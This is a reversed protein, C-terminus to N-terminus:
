FVGGGDFLHGTAGIPVAPHEVFAYTGTLSAKPEYVLRGAPVEVSPVLLTDMSAVNKKRKLWEPWLPGPKHEDMDFSPCEESNYANADFDQWMAGMSSDFATWAVIGSDYEYTHTTPNDASTLYGVHNERGVEGAEAAASSAVNAAYAEEDDGYAENLTSSNMEFNPDTAHAAEHLFNVAPSNVGVWHDAEPGDVVILATTPDWQLVRSNNNWLNHGEHNIAITIGLEALQAIVPAGNVPMYQTIYALALDLKALDAPTTGTVYFDEAKPM